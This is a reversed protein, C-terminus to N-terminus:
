VERFSLVALLRNFETVVFPREISFGNVLPYPETDMQDLKRFLDSRIPQSSPQLFVDIGFKVDYLNEFRDFQRQRSRIVLLLQRLSSRQSQIPARPDSM